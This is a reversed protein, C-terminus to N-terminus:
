GPMMLRDRHDSSRDSEGFQIRRHNGRSSRGRFSVHALTGEKSTENKGGKKRRGEHFLRAGIKFSLIRDVIFRGQFREGEGTHAKNVGGTPTSKPRCSKVHLQLRDYPFSRGCRECPMPTKYFLILAQSNYKDIYFDDDSATPLRAAPSKDEWEKTTHEALKRFNARHSTRCKDQHSEIVELAYNKGCLYCTIM